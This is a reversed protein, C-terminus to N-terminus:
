AGDAGAESDIVATAEELDIRLTVTSGVELGMGEEVTLNALVTGVDAVHCTAQVAGGIYLTERVEAQLSMANAPNGRLSIAPAPVALWVPAGGDLQGGSPTEVSV